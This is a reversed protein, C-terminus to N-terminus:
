LRRIVIRALQELQAVSLVLKHSAMSYGTELTVVSQGRRFALIRQRAVFAGPGFSADPRLWEAGVDLAVKARVRGLAKKGGLRQTIVVVLSGGADFFLSSCRIRASPDSAIDRRQVQLRAVRKVDAVKLILCGHPRPLPPPSVAPVVLGASGAAGTSLFLGLSVTLASLNRMSPAM